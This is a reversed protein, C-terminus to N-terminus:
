MEQLGNWRKRATPTNREQGDDTEDEEEDEKQLVERLKKSEKGADKSKDFEPISTTHDNKEYAERLLNMEEGNGVLEDSTIDSESKKHRGESLECALM